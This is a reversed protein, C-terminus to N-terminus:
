NVITNIGVFHDQIGFGSTKCTNKAKEITDTLKWWESYKLAEQLKQAYWFEESYKNIHKIVEFTEERYKVLKNITWAGEHM